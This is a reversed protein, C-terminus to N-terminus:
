KIGIRLKLNEISRLVESLKDPSDNLVVKYFQVLKDAIEEPTIMGRKILEAVRGSAGKGRALGPFLDDWLQHLTEQHLTTPLDVLRQPRMRGTKTRVGKVKAKDFARLFMKFFPHHRETGVILRGQAETWVYLSDELLAKADSTLKCVSCVVCKKAFRPLFRDYYVLQKM